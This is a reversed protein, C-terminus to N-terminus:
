NLMQQNDDWPVWRTCSWAVRPWSWAVRPWGFVLAAKNFHELLPKSELFSYSCRDPGTHWQWKTHNWHNWSLETSIQVMQVLPNEGNHSAPWSYYCRRFLIPHIRIDARCSFSFGNLDFLRHLWQIEQYSLLESLPTMLIGEHLAERDLWFFLLPLKHLFVALVLFIHVCPVTSSSCLSSIILIMPIMLWWFHKRNM